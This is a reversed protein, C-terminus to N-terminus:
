FEWEWDFEWLSLNSLAYHGDSSFCVSDVHGNCEFCHLEQGSAVEWLRFTHDWGGSLAFRGDPTFCVSIVPGTHGKFRMVEQGSAVEWLRLTKDESGSLAFRGDPAFCVSYVRGAHGEFRRVECGSAIEWLRLTHDWSGSLAYYGDPAFCVSVVDSTHGSFHQVGCHRVPDVLWLANDFMGCLAYRGDPAFCVSNVKHADNADFVFRDKFVRLLRGVPKEQDGFARKFGEEEVRHESQQIREVAEIDGRELHISALCRWYDPDIRKYSELERMQVVYPDGRIESKRWRWYGYNFTAELHQPYNQLAAQWCAVAEAERGLDIYSVARNNLGDAKLEVTHPVERPYLRGREKQYIRQLTTTVELMNAPRDQPAKQFCQRLLEAVSLPM